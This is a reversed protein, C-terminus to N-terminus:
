LAAALREEERQRLAVNINMREVHQEITKAGQPVPHEAIFAAVSAALAEDNLETIGGLLRSISNDPFRTTLEDWNRAVFEWVAAGHNRNRM